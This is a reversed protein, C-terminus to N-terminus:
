PEHDKFTSYGTIGSIKDDCRVLIRGGQDHVLIEPPGYILYLHKMLAEAVTVSVKDRILVCVLYKIFGCITTLLYKYGRKSTPFPGVLDVHVKQMVDSALAQQM